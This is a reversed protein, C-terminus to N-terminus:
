KGSWHCHDMVSPGLMFLEDDEDPAKEDVDEGYDEDVERAKDEEKRRKAIEKFQHLSLRCRFERQCIWCQKQKNHQDELPAQGQIIDNLQNFDKVDHLYIHQVTQGQPQNQFKVIKNQDNPMLIQIVNNKM